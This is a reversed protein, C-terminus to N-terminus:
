SWRPRFSPKRGACRLVSGPVASIAAPGAQIVARARMAARVAVRQVRAVVPPAHDVPGPAKRGGRGAPLVTAAIAAIPMVAAKLLPISTKLLPSKPGRRYSIFIWIWIL